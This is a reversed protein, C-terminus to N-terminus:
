HWPQGQGFDEVGGYRGCPAPLLLKGEERVIYCKKSALIKKKEYRPAHSSLSFTGSHCSGKVLWKNSLRSTVCHQSNCLFAGKFATGESWQVDLIKTQRSGQDMKPHEQSKRFVPTLIVSKVYRCLKKHQWTYPQWLNFACFKVASRNIFHNAVLQGSLSCQTEKRSLRCWAWESLPVFHNESRDCQTIAVYWISRKFDVFWFSVTPIWYLSHSERTQDSLISSTSPDVAIGSEPVALTLALGVTLWWM